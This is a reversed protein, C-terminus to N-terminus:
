LQIDFWSVWSTLSERTGESIETIQLKPKHGSISNMIHFNSLKYPSQSSNKSNYYKFPLSGGQCSTRCSWKICPHPPDDMYLLKDWWDLIKDFISWIWTYCSNHSVALCSGLVLFFSFFFLFGFDGWMNKFDLVALWCSPKGYFVAM